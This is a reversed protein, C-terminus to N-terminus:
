PLFYTKAAHSRRLPILVPICYTFVHGVPQSVNAMIMIVLENPLDLLCRKDLRDGPVEVGTQM